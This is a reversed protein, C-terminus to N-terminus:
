WKTSHPHLYKQSMYPWALKIRQKSCERGWIRPDNKKLYLFNFIIKLYAYQVRYPGFCSIFCYLFKYIHSGGQDFKAM